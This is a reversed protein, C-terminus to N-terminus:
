FQLFLFINIFVVVSSWMFGKGREKRDKPM